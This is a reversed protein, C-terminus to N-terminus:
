EAPRSNSYALYRPYASKAAAAIGAELNTATFVGLSSILLKHEVVISDWVTQGFSDTQGFWASAPLEPLVL